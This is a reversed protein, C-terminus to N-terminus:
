LKNKSAVTISFYLNKSPFVPIDSNKKQLLRLQFIYIKFPFM